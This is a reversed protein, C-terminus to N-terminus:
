ACAYFGSTHILWLALRVLRGRHRCVRRRRRRRSRDMRAMSRRQLDVFCSAADRKTSKCRRVLCRFLSVVVIISADVFGETQLDHFPCVADVLPLGSNSCIACSTARGQTAVRCARQGGGPNPTYRLLSCCWFARSVCRACGRVRVCACARLRRVVNLMSLKWM